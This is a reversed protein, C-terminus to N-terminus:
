RYISKVKGWTSEETPTVGTKLSPVCLLVSEFPLGLTTLFQDVLIVSPVNLSGHPDIDYCVLHEIDNLIPFTVGAHQKEVPNCFFKPDLLVIQEPLFQNILNATLNLPSGAADYCLFHDADSVNGGTLTNKLAPSL